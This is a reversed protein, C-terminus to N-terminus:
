VNLLRVVIGDVVAGERRVQEGVLAHAYYFFKESTMKNFYKKISEVLGNDKWKM